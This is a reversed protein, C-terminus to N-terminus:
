LSNNYLNLHIRSLINYANTVGYNERFIKSAVSIMKDMEAETYVRDDAELTEEFEKVDACVSCYWNRGNDYSSKVGSLEDSCRICFKQSCDCSVPAPDDCIFCGYSNKM